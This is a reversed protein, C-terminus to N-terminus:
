QCHKGLNKCLHKKEKVKARLRDVEGRLRSREEEINGGGSIERDSIVSFNNRNEADTLDRELAQIYQHCKDLELRLSANLKTLEEVLEMQSKNIRSSSECHLM